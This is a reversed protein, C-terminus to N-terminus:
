DNWNWLYDLTGELELHTVVRRLRPSPNASARTARVQDIVKLLPPQGAAGARTCGSVDWCFSTVGRDIWEDLAAPSM